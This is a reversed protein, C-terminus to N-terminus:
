VRCALKSMSLNKRKKTRPACGFNKRVPTLFIVISILSVVFSLADTFDNRERDNIKNANESRERRRRGRAGDVSRASKRHEGSHPPVGARLVFGAVTERDPRYM